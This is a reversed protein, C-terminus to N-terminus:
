RRGSADLGHRLGGGAGRHQQQPALVGEQEALGREPREAIEMGDLDVGGLPLAALQLVEGRRREETLPPREEHGARLGQRLIGHGLERVVERRGVGDRRQHQRARDRLAALGGRRQLLQHARDALYALDLDATLVQFRPEDLPRLRAAAIERGGGGARQDLDEALVRALEGGRDLLQRGREGLLPDSRGPAGATGRGRLASTM